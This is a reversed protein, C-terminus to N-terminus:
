EKEMAKRWRNLTAMENDFEQKTLKKDQMRKELKLGAAGIDDRLLARDTTRRIQTGRPMPLAMITQSLDLFRYQDLVETARERIEKDDRPKNAPATLMWDDFARVADGLRQRGVPDHVLEGPNLTQVIWQRSREYETKLGGERSISHARALETRYTDDSLQGLRYSQNIIRAASAPDTYIMPMIRSLAAPDDRRIPGRSQAERLAKYDDESLINKQAQIMPVTLKGNFHADWLDKGAQTAMAKRETETLKAADADVQAKQTIAQQFATVRKDFPLMDFASNGTLGTLDGSTKRIKGGAPTPQEGYFGISQLFGAPSRQIQSWVAAGSVRAIMEERTKSKQVQPMDSSDIIALQEALGKGFQSPDSNMLKSLNDGAARFQDARWDVRAQAEYVAAKSGLDARLDAFREALFFKSRENPAKGLTEDKHKDFDKLLNPTFEPAGPEASSQRKVFEETWQLRSASLTSSSWARAQEDESRREAEARSNVVKAAVELGTNDKDITVDRKDILPPRGPMPTRVQPDYIKM